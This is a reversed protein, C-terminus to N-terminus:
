LGAPRPAGRVTEWPVSRRMPAPAHVSPRFITSIEVLPGSFGVITGLQPAAGDSVIVADGLYLCNPSRRGPQALSAGDGCAAWPEEVRIGSPSADVAALRCVGPAPRPDSAPVTAIQGCRGCTFAVLDPDTKMVVPCRWDHAAVPEPLRESGGWYM